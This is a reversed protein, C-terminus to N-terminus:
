WLPDESEWVKRRIKPGDTEDQRSWRPLGSPGRRSGPGSVM